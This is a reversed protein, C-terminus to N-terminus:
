KKAPAEAQVQIRRASRKLELEDVEHLAAVHEFSRCHVMLSYPWARSPSRIFSCCYQREKDSPEWRGSADFYGVPHTKRDRRALYEGAALDIQNPTSNM